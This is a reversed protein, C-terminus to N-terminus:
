ESNMMVWGCTSYLIHAEIMKNKKSVAYKKLDTAIFRKLIWGKNPRGLEAGVESLRVITMNISNM